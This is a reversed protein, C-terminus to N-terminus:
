EDGSRHGERDAGAGNGSESGSSSDEKLGSAESDGDNGGARGEEIREEHGSEGENNDKGRDTSGDRDIDKNGGRRHRWYSVNFYERFCLLRRWYYGVVKQRPKAM